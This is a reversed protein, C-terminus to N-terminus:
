IFNSFKIKQHLNCNWSKFTKTSSLFIPSAYRDLLIPLQIFYLLSAHSIRWSNLLIQALACYFSKSSRLPIVHYAIKVKYNREKDCYLNSIKKLLSFILSKRFNKFAHRRSPM